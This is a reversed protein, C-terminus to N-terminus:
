PRHPRANDPARPFYRALHHSGPGRVVTVGAAIEVTMKAPLPPPAPRAPPAGVITTEPASEVPPWGGWRHRGPFDWGSRDWGSNDWGSFDWGSNDWGALHWASTGAWPALSRSKGFQGAFHTHSGFSVHGGGLVGGVMGAAPLASLAVLLLGTGLSRRMMSRRPRCRYPVAPYARKTLPMSFARERVDTEKMKLRRLNCSKKQLFQVPVGHKTQM